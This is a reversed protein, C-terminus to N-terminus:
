AAEEFIRTKLITNMLREEDVGYHLLTTLLVDLSDWFAPLDQDIAARILPDLENAIQNAAQLQGALEGTAYQDTMQIEETFLKQALPCGSLRVGGLPPTDTRGTQGSCNSGSM